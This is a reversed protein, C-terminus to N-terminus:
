DDFARRTVLVGITDDSSLSSHQHPGIDVALPCAEGGDCCVWRVRDHPLSAPLCDPCCAVWAVMEAPPQGEYTAGCFECTMASV